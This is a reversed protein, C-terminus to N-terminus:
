KEEAIREDHCIFTQMYFYDGVAKLRDPVLNVVGILEEPSYRIDLPPGFPTDQKNIEVIALIGGPKLVRRVERLFGETQSARFGHFVLSLYVLDVSSEKIRTHTTIDGMRAHILSGRTEMQLRKISPEHVDIAYVKGAPGVRQAFERTMYGNGCGADLIMLGPQIHLADLIISKDLLSVSSKSGHQHEPKMKM